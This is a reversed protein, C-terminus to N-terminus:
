LHLNGHFIRDAARGFPLPDLNVLHYCRHEKETCSSFNLIPMAPSPVALYKLLFSQTRVKTDDKRATKRKVMCLRDAAIASATGSSVLLNVGEM